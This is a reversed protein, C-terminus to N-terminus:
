RKPACAGTYSPPGHRFHGQIQTNPLERGGEYSDARERQQADQKRYPDKDPHASQTALVRDQAAVGALAVDERREVARKPPGVRDVRPEVLHELVLPAQRGSTTMRQLAECQDPVVCELVHPAAEREGGGQQVIM